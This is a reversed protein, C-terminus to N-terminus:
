GMFAGAVLQAADRQMTPSVHSYTGLTIAVTSHGLREQVVKVHVGQQMALTAWSHRLEHVSILPLEEGPEATRNYAQQWPPAGVPNSARGVASLGAVAARLKSEQGAPSEWLLRRTDGPRV